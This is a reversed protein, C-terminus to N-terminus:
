GLVGTVHLGALTVALQAPVLAAGVATFLWPRL